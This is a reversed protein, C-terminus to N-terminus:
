PTGGTGSVVATSPAGSQQSQSDGGAPQDSTPQAGASGDIAPAPTSSGDPQVADFAAVVEFTSIFKYSSCSVTNGDGGSPSTSSGGTDTSNSVNPRDSSIVSVRTVGDVDRLAALFKAVGTHGHSCGQIDISPGTISDSSVAPSPSSSPGTDPTAQATVNTLWVDDPIVIAVERLVREWDFRSKALSAVTENRAQQM